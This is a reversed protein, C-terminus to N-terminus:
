RGRRHCSTARGTPHLFSTRQTAAPLLVPCPGVYGSPKRRILAACLQAETGGSWSRSSTQIGCGVAQSLCTKLVRPLAALGHKLPFIRCVELAGNRADLVSKRVKVEMELLEPGGAEVGLWSSLHNERKVDRGKETKVGSASCWFCQQIASSTRVLECCRVLPLWAGPSRAQAARFM